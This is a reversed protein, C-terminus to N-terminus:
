SNKTKMSLLLQWMNESQQAFEASACYAQVQWISQEAEHIVCIYTMPTGNSVAEYSFCWLGDKQMPQCTLANHSIVLQTYAAADLPGFDALAQRTERIGAIAITGNDFLFDFERAYSENSCNQFDKDLTFSLEEYQWTQSACGSCIGALLLISAILAIIRRM